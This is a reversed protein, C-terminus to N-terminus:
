RKKKREKKHDDDMKESICEGCIIVGSAVMEQGWGRCVPIPVVVLFLGCLALTVGFVLQAPIYVEEQEDESDEEKHHNAKIACWSLMTTEDEDSPTYDELHAVRALYLMRHERKADRRHIARRIADFQKKPIKYGRNKLENQIIGIQQDLSIKVSCFSEVETKLEIIADYMKDKNQSKKLKWIKEVLKELRYLLATENMRIDCDQCHIPITCTLTFTFFLFYLITNHTSRRDFFYPM